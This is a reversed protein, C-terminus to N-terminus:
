SYSCTHTSGSDFYTSSVILSYVSMLKMPNMLAASSNSYDSHIWSCMNRSNLCYSVFATMVKLWEPSAMGQLLILFFMRLKSM